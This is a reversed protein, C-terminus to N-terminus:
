RLRLTELVQPAQCDVGFLRHIANAMSLCKSREGHNVLVREPRPSIHRLYG